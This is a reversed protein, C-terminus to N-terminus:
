EDSMSFGDTFHARKAVIICLALAYGRKLRPNLPCYRVDGGVISRISKGGHVITKRCLLSM